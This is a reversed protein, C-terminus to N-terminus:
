EPSDGRFLGLLDMGLYAFSAILAAVIASIWFLAELRRSM